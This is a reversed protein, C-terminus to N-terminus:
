LLSSMQLKTFEDCFMEFIVEFNTDREFKQWMLTLTKKVQMNHRRHKDHSTRTISKSFVRLDKYLAGTIDPLIIIYIHVLISTVHHNAFKFSHM